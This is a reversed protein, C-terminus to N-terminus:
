MVLDLGYSELIDMAAESAEDYGDGVAHSGDFGPHNVTDPGPKSPLFKRGENAWFFRLHGTIPHPVAGVELLAAQRHNSGIRVNPSSVEYYMSGPYSGGIDSLFASDTAVNQGVVGIENLAAILSGKGSAPAFQGAIRVQGARIDISIFSM